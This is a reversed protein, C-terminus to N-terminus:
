PCAPQFILASSMLDEWFALSEGERDRERAREGGAACEVCGSAEEDRFTKQEASTKGRKGGVASWGDEGGERGRGWM